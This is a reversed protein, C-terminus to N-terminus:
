QRREITGLDPKFGREGTGQCAGCQVVMSHLGRHLRVRGQGGCAPCENTQKGAKHVKRRGPKTKSLHLLLIEKARDVEVFEENSGGRDPHAEKAKEKFAAQIRDKSLDHLTVGLLLAAEMVQNKTVM